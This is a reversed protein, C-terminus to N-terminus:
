PKPPRQSERLYAKLADSLEKAKEEAAKTDEIAAEFRKQVL